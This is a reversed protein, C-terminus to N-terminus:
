GVTGFPSSDDPPSSDYQTEVASVSVTQNISGDDRSATVSILIHSIRTRVNQKINDDSNICVPSTFSLKQRKSRDVVPTIQIICPQENAHLVFRSNSTNRDQVLAFNSIDHIISEVPKGVIAEKGNCGGYLQLFARNAFVVSFPPTSRVVLRAESVLGVADDLLMCDALTSSVGNPPIIGSSHTIPDFVIRWEDTTATGVDLTISLSEAIAKAMWTRGLFSPPNISLSLDTNTDNDTESEETSATMPLSPRCSVKSLDIEPHKPSIVHATIDALNLKSSGDVNQVSSSSESSATETSSSIFYVHKLQKAITWISNVPDNVLGLKAYKRATAATYNEERRFEDGARQLLSQKEHLYEIMSDVNEITDSSSLSEEGDATKSESSNLGHLCQPSRSTPSRSGSGEEDDEMWEQMYEAVVSNIKGYCEDDSNYGTNDSPYLRTSSSSESLEPVADTFNLAIKSFTSDMQHNEM